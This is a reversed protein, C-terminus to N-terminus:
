WDGWFFLVVVKGRHESLKFHKGDVDEGETEPAVKGVSLHQLEYLEAKATGAMDRRGVRADSASALVKEYLSEAEASLKAADATKLKAVLAKGNVLEMAEIEVPDHTQRLTISMDYQRKLTQALAFTAQAQLSADPNKAVIGRFLKEVAPGPPLDSLPRFIPGLKASIVHGAELVAVSKEVFESGSSDNVVVWVLADAAAADQPAQQVAALLKPAYTEFRTARPASQAQTLLASIEEARVAGAVLALALTTLRLLIRTNM